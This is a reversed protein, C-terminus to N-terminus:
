PPQAMWFNCPLCWQQLLKDAKSLPFKSWSDEAEVLSLYFLQNPSHSGHRRLLSLQAAASVMFSEIWLPRWLPRRNLSILKLTRNPRYPKKLIRPLLSRKQNNSKNQKNPRMPWIHTNRKRQWTPRVSRSLRYPRNLSNPRIPWVHRNHEIPIIRRILRIPRNPGMPWNSWNMKNTRILLIPINLRILRNLWIM